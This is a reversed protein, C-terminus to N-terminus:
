AGFILSLNHWMYGLATSYHGIGGDTFQYGIRIIGFCLSDLHKMQIDPLGVQSCRLNSDIGDPVNVASTSSYEGLSPIAMVGPFLQRLIIMLEPYLNTRVFDDDGGTTRLRYGESKHGTEIRAVFDDNRFRSIGVIGCKGYTGTRDDAGIGDVISDPNASGGTSSKSFSIVGLV